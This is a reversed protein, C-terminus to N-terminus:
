TASSIARLSKVLIDMDTAPTKGGTQLKSARLRHANIMARHLGEGAGAKFFIYPDKKAYDPLYARLTPLLDAYCIFPQDSFRFHLLLWVEFCPLSIIPEICIESQGRKSNERQLPTKCHNLARPLDAQEGDIVVFVRDRPMQVFRDRARKVVAVANSRTQGAVVEVNASNIQLYAILGRLYFPETFEGECVILASAKQHRGSVKREARIREIALRGSKARHHRM